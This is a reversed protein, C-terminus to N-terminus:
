ENRTTTTQVPEDLEAVLEDLVCNTKIHKSESNPDQSKMKIYIKGDISYVSEFVCKNCERREKRIYKLKSLISYNYSTLNDNLFLDSVDNESTSRLKKRAQFLFIKFRRDSFQVIVTNKRKSKMISFNQDIERPPMKMKECFFTKVSEPSINSDTEFSNHTITVQLLKKKRDDESNQYELKNLRDNSNKMEASVASAYSSQPAPPPYPSPKNELVSVRLELSEIVDVLSYM